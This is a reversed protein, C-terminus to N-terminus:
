INEAQLVPRSQVQIVDSEPSKELSSHLTSYSRGAVTSLNFWSVTTSKLIKSTVSCMALLMRAHSNLVEASQDEEEIGPKQPNASRRFKSNMPTANTTPPM